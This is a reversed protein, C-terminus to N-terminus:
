SALNLMIFNEIVSQSLTAKNDTALEYATEGNMNTMTIDAGNLILENCSHPHNGSAAFM